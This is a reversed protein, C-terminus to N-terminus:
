FWVRREFLVAHGVIWPLSEPDRSPERRLAITRYITTALPNRRLGILHGEGHVFMDSRNGCYLVSVHELDGGLIPVLLGRLREYGPEEPWEISGGVERSDPDPHLITYATPYTPESTEHGM